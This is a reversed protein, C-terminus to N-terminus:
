LLIFTLLWIAGIIKDKNDNIHNNFHKPIISTLYIYSLFCACMFSHGSPDGFSASCENNYLEDFVWFPRPNRYLDKFLVAIYIELELFCM